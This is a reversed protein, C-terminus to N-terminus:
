AAPQPDKKQAPPMLGVRRMRKYLGVRSIGLVRATASRNNNNERLADLLIERESKALQQNLRGSQGNNM